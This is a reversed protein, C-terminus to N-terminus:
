IREAAFSHSSIISEKFLFADCRVCFRRKGSGFNMKASRGPTAFPIRDEVRSLSRLTIPCIDAAFDANSPDPDPSFDIKFSLISGFSSGALENTLNEIISM